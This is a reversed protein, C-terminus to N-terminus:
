VSFIDKLLNKVTLTPTGDKKDFSYTGNEIREKPFNPYLQKVLKKQEKTLFRYHVLKM